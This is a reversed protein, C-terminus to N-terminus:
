AHGSGGAMGVFYIACLWRLGVACLLRGGFYEAALDELHDLLPAKPHQLPNRDDRVSVSSLSACEGLKPVTGLPICSSGSTAAAAEQKEKEEALEVEDPQGFLSTEALQVARDYESPDAERSCHWRQAVWEGFPLLPAPPPPSEGESKSSGSTHHRAASRGGPPAGALCPPPSSSSMTAAARGTPHILPCSDPQQQQQPPPEAHMRTCDTRAPFRQRIASANLSANRPEPNPIHQCDCELTQLLTLLRSEIWAPHGGCPECASDM